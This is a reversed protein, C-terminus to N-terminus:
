SGESQERARWSDFDGYQFVRRIGKSFFTRSFGPFEKAYARHLFIFVTPIGVFFSANGVLTDCKEGDTVNDIIESPFRGAKRSKAGEAISRRLVTRRGM